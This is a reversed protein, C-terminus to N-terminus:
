SIFIKGCNEKSEIESSNAIERYFSKELKGIRIQNGLKEQRAQFFEYLTHFSQLNPDQSINPTLSIIINAGAEKAFNLRKKVPLSKDNIRTLVIEFGSRELYNELHNAISYFNDDQTQWTPSFYKLPITADIMVARNSRNKEYELDAKEEYSMQNKNSGTLSLIFVLLFNAFVFLFRNMCCADKIIFGVYVALLSITPSDGDGTQRPPTSSIFSLKVFRKM